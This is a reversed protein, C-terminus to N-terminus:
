KFINEPEIDFYECVQTMEVCLDNEKLVCELEMDILMLSGKFLQTFDEILHISIFAIVKTIKGTRDDKLINCEIDNENIFKYLQLETM